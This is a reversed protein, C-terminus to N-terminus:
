LNFAFTVLKKLEVHQEITKEYVIDNAREWARYPKDGSSSPRDKGSWLLDEFTDSSTFIRSADNVASLIKANACYPDIGKLKKLDEEARNKKDADHIVVYPISFKGLLNAIPSITWKGSCSVITIHDVKFPEIGCAKKIGAHSLVAVESDGEVLVVKESFFAECVTPHFDLVGRLANRDRKGDDDNGFPDSTLQVVEIKRNTKRRRFVALSLPDDDVNVLFPSHTTVIVQWGSNHGISTLARKLRRMLHPHLFLEPEEFLLMTSRNQNETGTEASSKALVEILAFILARQLGHGQRDVTTETGDNIKIGASANLLKGMDPSELTLKVTASLISSIRESIQAGLAGAEKLAGEGVGSLKKRITEFADTLTMFEPSAQIAPVIIKNLLQGYPSKKESSSADSADVVAPVLIAQPLSQKLAPAISINDDTWRPSSSTILSPHDRRLVAKVEERKNANRWNTGTIGLTSAVDKINQAVEGWSESFGTIQEDPIFAEHDTSIKKTIPDCGYTVRLRIEDQYVLGAVGPKTREWTELKDFTCEISIPEVGCGNRWDDPEPQEQNLFIELARLISSKACNNPGILTTFDRPALTIEEIARFNKVILRKLRM